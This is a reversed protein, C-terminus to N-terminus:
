TLQRCGISLSPMPPRGDWAQAASELCRMVEKVGPREGPKERWCCEVMTWLEDTFGLSEAAKPKRPRTGEVIALVTGYHDERSFPVCESLVQGMCTLDNSNPVTAGARVEYIVMGLAYCDSRKTQRGDTLGFRGPDFLEPSMWWFDSSVSISSASPTTHHEAGASTSIGFDALCARFSDNILVNLQDDSNHAPIRRDVTPIM